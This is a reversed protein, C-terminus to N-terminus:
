RIYQVDARFDASPSLDAPSMGPKPIKRGRRRAAAAPPRAASLGHIRFLFWRGARSGAEGAIKGSSIEGPSAFQGGRADGGRMYVWLGTRQQRPNRTGGEPSVKNTPRKRPAFRRTFKREARIPTLKPGAKLSSRQTSPALALPRPRIRERRSIQTRRAHSYAPNTLM